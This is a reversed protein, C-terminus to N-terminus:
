YGRRAKWALLWRVDGVDAVVYVPDGALPEALTYRAGVRTAVLETAVPRDAALGHLRAATLDVEDTATSITRRDPGLAAVASQFHDGDLEAIRALDTRVLGAPAPYAPAVHVTLHLRVGRIDIGTFRDRLEARVGELDRRLQARDRHQWMFRYAHRREIWAQEAATLARDAIVELRGGIMEYSQHRDYPRRARVEGFMPFASFPYAHTRQNIAFVHAAHVLVFGTVFGSGRHAVRPAAAPAPAPTALLRDWDVFAAALPLWHPNWLGMVVGLGVVEIAWLAGALARLRPRAVLFIATVPVLQGILNALAALKWRWASALLWDAADTRPVGIRDFRALLQHRLNDSLVWALSGGGSYLKFCAAAFFPLAITLQVLRLSAQYGTAAVVPPAGRLRRLWADVSATDGGRAGAFGLHALLPLSNHHSWTATFAVDYSALALTAVLSVAHSARASLGVLMSWTAAWAVARLLEVLAAPPQGPYLWWLGVPRYLAAPAGAPDSGYGTAGLRQLTWLISIAIAVRLVAVGTRGGPALWYTRWWATM